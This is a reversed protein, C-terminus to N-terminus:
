CGTSYIDGQTCINYVFSNVMLVVIFLSYNVFLYDSQFALVHILDSINLYKTPFLTYNMSGKINEKAFCMSHCIHLLLINDFFDVINGLILFKLAHYSGFEIWYPQM